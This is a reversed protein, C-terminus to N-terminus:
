YYKGIQLFRIYSDMEHIKSIFVVQKFCFCAPTNKAPSIDFHLRGTEFNHCPQM